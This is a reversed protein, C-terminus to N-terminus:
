IMNVVENVYKEGLFKTFYNEAEQNFYPTTYATIWWKNKKDFTKLIATEDEYVTLIWKNGEYIFETQYKIQKNSIYIVGEYKKM